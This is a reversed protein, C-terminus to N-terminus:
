RWEDDGSLLNIANNRREIGRQALDPLVEGGAGEGDGLSNYYLSIRAAISLTLFVPLTHHKFFAESKRRTM